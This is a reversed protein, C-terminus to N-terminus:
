GNRRLINWQAWSTVAQAGAQSPSLGSAMLSSVMQDQSAAHPAIENGVSLYSMDPSAGAPMFVPATSMPPASAMMPMMKKAARKARWLDFKAKLKVLVPLGPAGLGALGTSLDMPYQTFSDAVSMVDAGPDYGMTSTLVGTRAVRDPRVWHSGGGHRTIQQM